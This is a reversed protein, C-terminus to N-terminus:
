LFSNGETAQVLGTDNIFASSIKKQYHEAVEVIIAHQM